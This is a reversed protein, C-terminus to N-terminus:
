KKIVWVCLNKNEDIYKDKTEITFTTQSVQGTEFGFDDSFEDNMEKQELHVSSDVSTEIEQSIAGKARLIAMKEQLKVNKMEKACGIAGVYKGKLSPDLLWEPQAALSLTQICLLLLFYRM